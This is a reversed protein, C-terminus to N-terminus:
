ANLNHAVWLRAVGLAESKDIESTELGGVRGHVGHVALVEAIPGDGHRIGEFLIRLAFPVARGGFTQEGGLIWQGMSVPWM